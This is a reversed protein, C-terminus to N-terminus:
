AVLDRMLNQIIRRENAKADITQIHILGRKDLREANHAIRRAIANIAGKSPSPIICGCSKPRLELDQEWNVVFDGILKKLYELDKIDPPPQNTRTKAEIEIESILWRKKQSQGADIALEYEYGNYMIPYFLRVVVDHGVVKLDPAIGKLKERKETPLGQAYGDLRDQEIPMLKALTRNIAKILPLRESQYRQLIPHTLKKSTPNPISHSDFLDLMQTVSNRIAKTVKLRNNPEQWLNKAISQWIQKIRERRQKKDNINLWARAQAYLNENHSENEYRDQIAHTEVLSKIGEVIMGSDGHMRRRFTLGMDALTHYITDIYYTHQTTQRASIKRALLGQQVLFQALHNNMSSTIIDATVRPHVQLKAEIERLNSAQLNPNTAISTM